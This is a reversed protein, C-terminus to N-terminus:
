GKREVAHKNDPKAEEEGKGDDGENLRTGVAKDFGVL